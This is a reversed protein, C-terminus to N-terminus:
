VNTGKKLYIEFFNILQDLKIPKSIYYNLGESLFKEKDGKIANATLVATPTHPINNNQEYSVIQKYADLGSLRPMNIDLLLIDYQNSKYYEVAEVGDNAIHYELGLNDLHFKILEQNAINDEAVLVKGQFTATDSSNKSHVTGNQEIITIPFDLEFSFSTGKNEESEIKIASGMSDIIHKCISLGLGTGEYKKNTANDVQIFPSFIDKLKESPIGIGSDKITFNVKAISNNKETLTVDFYIFGNEPTFKIANSLLNSIVQQLRIKDTIINTPINEDIAFIFHLKKEKARQSFLEYIYECTEFIDTAAYSIDFTGSQIKSIDLIDNIILLLSEASTNVLSAFKKNQENLTTDDSLIKSFGIISNLPTRIEHSMNALFISKAKNANQADLLAQNLSETRSLVEKELNQNINWLEFSKEELLAESEKRAKREREFRKKWPNEIEQQTEQM